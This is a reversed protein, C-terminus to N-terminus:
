NDLPHLAYSAKPLTPNPHGVVILSATLLIIRIPSGSIPLLLILTKKPITHEEQQDVVAAVLCHRHVTRM